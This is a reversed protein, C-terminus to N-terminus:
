FGGFFYSVAFHLENRNRCNEMEGGDDTHKSAVLSTYKKKCNIKIEKRNHSRKAKTKYKRHRNWSFFSAFFQRSIFEFERACFLEFKSRIAKEKLQNIRAWRGRLDLQLKLFSEFLLAREIAWLWSSPPSSHPFAPLCLHFFSLFLQLCHGIIVVSFFLMKSSM